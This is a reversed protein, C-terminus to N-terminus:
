GTRIVEAFRAVLPTHKRVLVLIMILLGLTAAAVVMVARHGFQLSEKFHAVAM